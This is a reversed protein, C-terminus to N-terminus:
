VPKQDSKIRRELENQFIKDITALCNEIKLTSYHRLKTIQMDRLYLANQRTAEDIQEQTPWEIWSLRVNDDGDM